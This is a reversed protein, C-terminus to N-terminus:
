YVVNEIFYREIGNRHVGLSLCGTLGSNATRQSNMTRRTREIGFNPGHEVVSEIESHLGDAALKRGHGVIEIEDTKNVALGSPCKGSLPQPGSGLQGMWGGDPEQANAVPLAAVDVDIEVGLLAIRAVDEDIQIVSAWGDDFGHPGSTVFGAHYQLGARAIELSPHLHTGCGDFSGDGTMDAFLQGVDVTAVRGAGIPTMQAAQGAEGILFRLSAVPATVRRPHLHQVSVGSQSGPAGSQELRGFVTQAAWRIQHLRWTQGQRRGCVDVRRSRRRGRGRGFDIDTPQVPQPNQFAEWLGVPADGILPDGLFQEKTSHWRWLDCGDQAAATRPKRSLM